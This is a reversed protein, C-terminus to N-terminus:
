KKKLKLDLKCANAWEACLVVYVFNQVSHDSLAEFIRCIGQRVFLGLPCQQKQHIVRSHAMLFLLVWQTQEEPLCIGNTYIFIPVAKTGVTSWQVRQFCHVWATTSCAVLKYSWHGESTIQLKVNLITIFIQLNFLILHGFLLNVTFPQTFICTFADIYQIWGLLLEPRLLLM